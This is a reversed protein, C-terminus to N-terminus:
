TVITSEGIMAVRDNDDIDSDGSDSGGRVKDGSDNGDNTM